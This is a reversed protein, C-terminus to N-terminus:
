IDLYDRGEVNHGEIESPSQSRSLSNIPRPFFM